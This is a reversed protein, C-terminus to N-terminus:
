DNTQDAALALLFGVRRIANEVYIEDSTGAVKALEIENRALGILMSLIEARTEAERRM